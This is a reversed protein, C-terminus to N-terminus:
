DAPPRAQGKVALAPMLDKRQYLKEAPPIIQKNTVQPQSTEKSPGLQIMPHFGVQLSIPMRTREAMFEKFTRV